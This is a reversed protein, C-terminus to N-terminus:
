GLSQEVDVVAITINDRGGAEMAANFQETLLGAPQLFRTVPFENRFVAEDNHFTEIIDHLISANWVARKRNMYLATKKNVQRNKNWKDADFFRCDGVTIDFRVSSSIGFIM